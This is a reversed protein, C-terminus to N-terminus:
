NEDDFRIYLFTKGVVQIGKGDPMLELNDTRKAPFALSDTHDMQIAELWDQLDRIEVKM